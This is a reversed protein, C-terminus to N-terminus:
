LKAVGLTQRPPQFTIAGGDDPCWTWPKFPSIKLGPALHLAQDFRSCSLANMVGNEVGPVHLVQLHHDGALIVDVAVKLLHNYAPLAQLTNFIDVTNLNNTYIIFHGDPRQVVPV